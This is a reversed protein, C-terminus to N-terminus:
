IQVCVTWSTNVLYASFNQVFGVLSLVGIRYFEGEGWGRPGVAWRGAVRFCFFFEIFGLGKM